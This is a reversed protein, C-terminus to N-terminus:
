EDLPNLPRDPCRRFTLTPAPEDRQLIRGVPDWRFRQRPEPRSLSLSPAVVLRAGDFSYTATGVIVDRLGKTTGLDLLAKTYRGDRLVMVYAGTCAVAEDQAVGWIGDVPTAPSAAGAPAAAALLLAAVLRARAM